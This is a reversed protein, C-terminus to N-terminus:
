SIMKLAKVLKLNDKHSKISIRIFHNDLGRFNKCDRVLIKYKLLKKQLATSDLKTKILIFNTSSNIYDFGNIMAIKNKLFEYEKSVINKSKTIHSSNNLATIAAQEAILNVSWPIKNKKLISIIYKSSAAYGIRLGALGFSKTLSRLVFLNDFKKINLMISENSNPVLEIFCEDIFILSNQKKAKDIIKLIKQKPILKGTPNNPNCIFVCGNKPIKKIFDDLDNELDMTKFFLIKCNNLKSVVEYEGFTPIPILVPTNKSLFINCFNYLIEIAGNGVILRSSPLGTYKKLVSLLTSSHIDPYNEVKKINKKITDKVQRPMGAPSINSSFDLVDIIHSKKSLIGGHIIPCHSEFESKAKIRM